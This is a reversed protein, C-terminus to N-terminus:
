SSLLELTHQLILMDIPSCPAASTLNVKRDSSGLGWDDPEMKRIGQGWPVSISILRHHKLVWYGELFHWHVEGLLLPGLQGGSLFDQVLVHHQLVVPVQSRHTLTTPWREENTSKTQKQKKSGDTTARVDPLECTQLLTRSCCGVM